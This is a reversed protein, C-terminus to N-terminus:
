LFGALITKSISSSLYYYCKKLDVGGFIFPSNITLATNTFIIGCTYYALPRLSLHAFSSQSRIPYHIIRLIQIFNVFFSTLSLNLGLSKTIFTFILIM